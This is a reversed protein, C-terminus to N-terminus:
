VFAIAKKQLLARLVLSAVFVPLAKEKAVASLQCRIRPRGARGSVPAPAVPAGGACGKWKRVPLFREWLARRLWAVSPLDTEPATSSM